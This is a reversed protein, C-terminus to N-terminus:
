TRECCTLLDNLSCMGGVGENERSFLIVPLKKAVSVLTEDGEGKEDM